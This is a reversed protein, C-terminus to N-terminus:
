KVLFWDLSYINHLYQQNRFLCIETEGHFTFGFREALRISEINDIYIHANVRSVKMENKAFDLIACLAESMFGQGQYEPQLDYGVDVCDIVTDWCHFGCTGIKTSDSKLTLIWRHQARPEPQLYYNILEDAETLTKLPEADFLYRNINDNSFQNLIFERDEYSINKLLLRDTEIEHFFM